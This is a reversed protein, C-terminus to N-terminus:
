ANVFKQALEMTKLAEALDMAPRVLKGNKIM